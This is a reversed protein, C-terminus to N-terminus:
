TKGSAELARAVEIMSLNRFNRYDNLDIIFSDVEGSDIHPLSKIKKLQEYYDSYNKCFLTIMRGKNLGIGNVVTMTAHCPEKEMEM